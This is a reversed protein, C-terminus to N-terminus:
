VSKYMVLAQNLVRDTALIWSQTKFVTTSGLCRVFIMAIPFRWVEIAHSQYKAANWASVDTRKISLVRVIGNGIIVDDFPFKTRTVPRKHPSDMPWPRNGRVIALSTSSQPKKHAGWCVASLPAGLAPSIPRCPLWQSTMTTCISIKRHKIRPNSYFPWWKTSLM